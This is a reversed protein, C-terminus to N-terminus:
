FTWWGILFAVSIVWQWLWADPQTPSYTWQMHQMRHLVTVTIEIKMKNVIIITTGVSISTTTTTFCFTHPHHLKVYQHQMIVNIIRLHLPLFYRHATSNNSLSLSTLTQWTRQLYVWWCILFPKVSCTSFPMSIMHINNSVIIVVWETCLMWVTLRKM